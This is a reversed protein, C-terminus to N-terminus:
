EAATGTTWSQRKRYITSPSIGLAAAARATNGDCLAIAQEIIRQEQIWLPEIQARRTDRPRGASPMLPAERLPVDRGAIESPLMAASVFRADNMVAIRRLTNQLERVNGPWPYLAMRLEAEPAFGEFARGEERSLRSLLARALRLIDGGRHRLPPLAIPLVNLRYYLDERFRGNAIEAQPDRNTACVFRVDVTRARADGM